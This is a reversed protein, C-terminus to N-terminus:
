ENTDCKEINNLRDVHSFEAYFEALGQLELIMSFGVDSSQLKRFDKYLSRVDLVVNSAVAFTCPRDGEISAKAITEGIAPWLSRLEKKLDNDIALEELSKLLKHMQSFISATITTYPSEDLGFIDILKQYSVQLEKLEDETSYTFISMISPGDEEWGFFVHSYKYQIILNDLLRMSKRTIDRKGSERNAKIDSILENVAKEVILLRALDVREVTPTIEEILSVQGNLLALIELTDENAKLATANTIFLGLCVIKLLQKM